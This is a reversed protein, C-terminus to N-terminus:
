DFCFFFSIFVQKKRERWSITIKGAFSVNVFLIPHFIIVFFQQFVYLITWIIISFVSIYLVTQKPIAETQCDTNRQWACWLKQEAWIVGKQQEIVTMTM